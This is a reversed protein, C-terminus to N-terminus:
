RERLRFCFKELRQIVKTKKISFLLGCLRVIKYQGDLSERVSFLKEYWSIEKYQRCRQLLAYYEPKHFFSAEKSWIDLEAFLQTRLANETQVRTKCSGKHRLLWLAMYMVENLYSSEFKTYLNYRVLDDRLALMALVLCAPEKERLDELSTGANCRHIILVDELQTIRSALALSLRVFYSDEQRYLNQFQLRYRQVFDHRYLKDWCWGIAFNFICSSLDQASLVQKDPSFPSFARKHREELRKTRMNLLCFRCITIDAQTQEAREYLRQLFVPKFIDDADIISLYKGRAYHMGWNRAAGAGSHSQRLVKIRADKAAYERLISLSNDTSGDDVCIIEIDRLTQGIVSDLCERLYRAANYIPIIVSIQPM